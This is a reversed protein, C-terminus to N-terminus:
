FQWRPHCVWCSRHWAASRQTAYKAYASSFQYFERWVDDVGLTQWLLRCVRQLRGIEDPTLATTALLEFWPLPLALLDM